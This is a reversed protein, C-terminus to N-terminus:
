DFAEKAGRQITAGYGVHIPFILASIPLLSLTAPGLLLGLQTLEIAKSEKPLAGLAPVVFPLLRSSLSLLTKFGSWLCPAYGLCHLYEM